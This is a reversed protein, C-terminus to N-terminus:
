TDPLEVKGVFSYYIEIEQRRLKGRRKGDLAVSEHVVIKEVFERLLTPTLEEITTHRRVVNMFKEANATAEQAKSLEERLRAAREKLEKQEAEYDASLETFREDSIRGTVSDEYLRKFIASLEAIRKEAAELEKKKAANRRRDGDENQEILLKMFRAEHKAAYSTVKRLNSLVGATLLDTRIFHATCDATRKKYSGCIYCDQKRKDTQYRQQYMVSGCDACFLIGSFLGVEDYRNPRKRQKRVEQAREWTERDIIPEHHNEFVAQKEPPNEISHKLKYSPKETKFNVLCGTYERNELLHVVTNTAWKCEYGPHYRRTSGTRRYELTGPTPIQQETLMRAIKTPGNGALCLSYIQRVVPAAEEDIIFNEDEDMLYGYVPKSTIPKGSMGKSRKVAKIKKSTDRVLWENFINRLPAFDNEGQASDVGDNIAIFRVGKQPFIMETYMGVQLYNRGLRSMDKVIVTGVKGAEIDALMAQFGPRQFNAGSYGDDTYWRLNSFGNQKAYTELIRKQNSISNSEGQLEDEHSLRPYLATILQQTTQRLM